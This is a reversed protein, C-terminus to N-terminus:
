KIITMENLLHDANAYIDIVWLVYRMDVMINRCLAPNFYVDSMTSEWSRDFNIGILEGKGNLVPSGSNGGTTHNAGTFCVPLQGQVAYPGFVHQRYLSDLKSSIKFDYQMTANKQLIGDVTTVYDYKVGDRPRSSSVTGYALRLTSNADCWRAAPHGQSRLRKVWDNMYKEFETNFVKVKPAVVSAHQNFLADSMQMVADQDLKKMDGSLFIKELQSAELFSTNEYLGVMVAGWDDENEDLLKKIIEGELKGSVKKTLLPAMEFFLDRETMVDFDKYFASLESWKKPGVEKWDAGKEKMAAKVRKAFAFLEPGSNMFESFAANALLYSTYEAYLSDMKQVPQISVKQSLAQEEARRMEVVDFKKLGMLAGKWKIYANAVNSQKAAYQIRVEDSVIMRDKLVKMAADRFEIRLPYHYNVMFDVAPSPLFHETKGPFGYVMTFDGEKVGQANVKLYTKPHYPQNKSDYDAPENQDNAYVRFVSFDGTHRPWVWNDTDGGFKGIDGPPAGVWRVDRYTKMVIRYQQTGYNYDRIFCSYAEDATMVQAGFVGNGEKSWTRGNPLSAAKCSEIKLASLRTAKEEELVGKMKSELWGTVEEISYVISISLGPCPLEQDKNMAWYGDTLYDHATSSHQQIYDFGCHHNTLLLGDPSVLEGTCGMDFWVVAHNLSTEAGSFIDQSSIKLGKAQMDQIVGELQSPIWMGEQSFATSVFLWMGLVMIKCNMKM